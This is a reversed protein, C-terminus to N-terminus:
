EKFLPNQNLLLANKNSLLASPYALLAPPPRNGRILLQKQCKQNLNLFFLKEPFPFKKIIHEIGLHKKKRFYARNVPKRNIKISSIVNKFIAYGKTTQVLGRIHGGQLGVM